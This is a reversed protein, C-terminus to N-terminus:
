LQELLWARLESRLAAEEDLRDQYIAAYEADREPVLRVVHRLRRTPHPAAKALIVSREIVHDPDEMATMLRGQIDVILVQSEEPKLLM